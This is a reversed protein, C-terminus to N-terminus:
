LVNLLIAVLCAVVIAILAKKFYCNITKVYLKDRQLEEVDQSLVNEWLTNNFNNEESVSQLVVIKEQVGEMASKSILVAPKRKPINVCSVGQILSKEAWKSIFTKSAFPLIWGGEIRSSDEFVISEFADSVTYM